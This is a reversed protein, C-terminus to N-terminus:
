QDPLDIRRDTPSSGTTDFDVAEITVLTPDNDTVSSAPDGLVSPLLAELRPVILTVPVVLLAGCNAYSEEATWEGDALEYNAGVAQRVATELAQLMRECAAESDGWCHVECAHRADGLSRAKSQDSGGRSKERTPSIKLRVWTYRPPAAKAPLSKRGFTSPAVFRLRNAINDLVTQLQM